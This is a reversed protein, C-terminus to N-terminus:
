QQAKLERYLEAKTAYYFPNAYFVGVLGLTLASLLFWGLFSLDLVFANWKQGDMMRRSLTIAEKGGITPDEALIYPVMMYSYHKIVGPVIFLLTWLCLFLGRLFMAGVTRWYPHFGRKMEGLEAPAEANRTFFGQCGVELPNIVFIRLASSVLLAILVVGVIIAGIIAFAAKAEEPNEQVATIANNITAIDEPSANTAEGVATIADQPNEYTVGNVILKGDETKVDLQQGNVDIQGETTGSVSNAQNGASSGAYGASGAVLLVLLLAVLVCKWYNAKFAVKGRAKLEKRDWM